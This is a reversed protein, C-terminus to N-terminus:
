AMGGPDPGVRLRLAEGMAVGPAALPLRLTCRMGESRWDHDISGQLSAITAGILRSGFGRAAPPQVGVCGAEQWDLVLTDGEQRWRLTVQGLPASGAGHKISNTTLEHLLLGLDQVIGAPISLEPGDFSVRGELPATEGEVLHRLPCPMWRSGALLSHSRGLASVRRGIEERLGAADPARAMRIVAQVVSLLNNARHDVERVLLRARQEAQMRETVDFTIGYTGIRAGVPGILIGHLEQWRIEGNDDRLIQVDTIYRDALGARFRRNEALYQERLDPRWRAVVEDFTILGDARPAMGMMGFIHKSWFIRGTTLDHDWLGIQAADAMLSIQRRARLMDTNATILSLRLAEFEAMRTALDADPAPGDVLGPHHEADNSGPEPM